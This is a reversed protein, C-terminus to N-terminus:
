KRNELETGMVFIANKCRCSSSSCEKQKPLLLQLGAMPSWTWSFGLDLLPYWFLSLINFIKICENCLIVSTNYLQSQGASESLIKLM